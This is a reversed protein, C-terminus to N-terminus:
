LTTLFTQYQPSYTKRCTIRGYPTNITEYDALQYGQKIAISARHITKVTDHLSQSRKLRRVAQGYALISKM